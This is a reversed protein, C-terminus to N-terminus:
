ILMSSVSSLKSCLLQQSHMWKRRVLIDDQGPEHTRALRGDAPQQCFPQVAFKDIHVGLQLGMKALADRLDKSVLAFRGKAQGLDTQAALDCLLGTQDDAGTAARQDIRLAPVRQSLAAGDDAQGCAHVFDQPAHLGNGVPRQQRAAPGLLLLANAIQEILPAVGVGRDRELDISASARKCGDDVM